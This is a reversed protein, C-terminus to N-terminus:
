VTKWFPQLMRQNGGATYSLELKETNQFVSPLTKKIIAIRSLIFQYRMATKIKIERMFLSLYRKM